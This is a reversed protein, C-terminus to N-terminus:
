DALKPWFSSAGLAAVLPYPLLALLRLLGVLLGYGLTKM